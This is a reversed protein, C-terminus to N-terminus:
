ALDRMGDVHSENKVHYHWYSTVLDQCFTEFSVNEAQNKPLPVGVFNFGEIGPLHQGAKYPKIVILLALFQSCAPTPIHAFTSNVVM